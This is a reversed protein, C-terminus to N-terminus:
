ALTLSHVSHFCTGMNIASDGVNELRWQRKLQSMAFEDMTQMEAKVRQFLSIAEDSLDPFKVLTQLEESAVFLWDRRTSFPLNSEANSLTYPTSATPSVSTSFRLPSLQLHLQLSSFSTSHDDLATHIIRLQLSRQLFEPSLFRPESIPGSVPHQFPSDVSHCEQIYDDTQGPTFYSSISHQQPQIISQPCAEIPSQRPHFSRHERYEKPALFRGRVNSGTTTDISLVDKCRFCLCLM